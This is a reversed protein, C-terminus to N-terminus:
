KLYIKNSSKWRRKSKGVPKKEDLSAGFGTTMEGRGM